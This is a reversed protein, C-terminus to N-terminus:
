GHYGIGTKPLGRADDDRVRIGGEDAGKSIVKDRLGAEVDDGLDFGASVCQDPALFERRINQDQIPVQHKFSQEWGAHLADREEFLDFTQFFGRRHDDSGAETEIFVAMGRHLCSRRFVQMAVCPDRTQFCIMRALDNEAASFDKRRWSGSMMMTPSIRSRSVASMAMLAACVPWMTILVRCVLSAGVVNVRSNFMPTAGKLM